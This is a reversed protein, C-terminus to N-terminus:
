QVARMQTHLRESIRLHKFNNVNLYKLVKVESKRKLKETRRDAELAHHPVSMAGM